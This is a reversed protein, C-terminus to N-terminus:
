SQNHAEQRMPYGHGIFEHRAESEKEMDLYEESSILVSEKAAQV